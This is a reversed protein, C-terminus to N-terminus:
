VPVDAPHPAPGACARTARPAAHAEAAELAPEPLLTELTELNNLDVDHTPVQQAGKSGVSAAAVNGIARQSRLGCGGM